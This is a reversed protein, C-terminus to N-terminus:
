NTKKVSKRFAWFYSYKASKKICSIEPKPTIRGSCCEAQALSDNQM